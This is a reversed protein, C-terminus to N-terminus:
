KVLKTAEVDQAAAAIGTPKWVGYYTSVSIVFAPIAALLAIGIDFPTGTAISRGLETLLSTALTLGSLLWSRVNSKTVRTSVLAVVVPMITALIIQVVVGWDLTFAVVPANTVVALYEFM